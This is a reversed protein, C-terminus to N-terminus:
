CFALPALAGQALAPLVLPVPATQLVSSRDAQEQMARVIAKTNLRASISAIM